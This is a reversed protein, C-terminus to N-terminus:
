HTRWDFKLIEDTYKEDVESLPKQDQSLVLARHELIFHAPYFSLASIKDANNSVDNMEWNEPLPSWLQQSYFTKRVPKLSGIAKGFPVDSQELMKNIEPPLRSPVYWNDAESLIHEGCSLEVHRFLVLENNDVNLRQRTEISPIKDISKIRNAIIKPQQTLRHDGCWKELTATASSSSLLRVNFSQIVSIIELRSLFTDPLTTLPESQLATYFGSFLLFLFVKKM